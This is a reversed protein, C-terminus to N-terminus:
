IINGEKARAIQSIKSKPSRRKSGALSGFVEGAKHIGAIQINM